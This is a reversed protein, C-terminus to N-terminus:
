CREGEFGFHRFIYCSRKEIQFGRKKAYRGTFSFSIRSWYVFTLCIAYELGEKIAKLRFGLNDRGVFHKGEKTVKKATALRL